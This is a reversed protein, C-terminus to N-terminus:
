NHKGGFYSIALHVITLGTGFAAMFGKMRQVGQENCGVRHELQHLRGPQGIGMVQEMQSKLVQLDALVQGEFETM